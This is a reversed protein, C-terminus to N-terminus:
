REIVRNVMLGGDKTFGGQLNVGAACWLRMDPKWEALPRCYIPVPVPVGGRSSPGGRAATESKNPLSWGYAQMRGDDKQVHAKVQRYQERRENARRAALKDSGIFELFM